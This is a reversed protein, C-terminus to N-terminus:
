LNEIAFIKCIKCIGAKEDVDIGTFVLSLSEMPFYNLDTCQLLYSVNLPFTQLFNYKEACLSTVSHFM